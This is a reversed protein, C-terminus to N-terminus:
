EPLSPALTANLCTPGCEKGNPQTVTYTVTPFDTTRVGEGTTVRVAVRSPTLSPFFVEQRCSSGGDCEYLYSAEGETGTRLVLLEIKFAGAPLSPLRVTIGSECGALTCVLDNDFLACASTSGALLLIGTRRILFSRIM